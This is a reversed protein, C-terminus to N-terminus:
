QGRRAKLQINGINGTSNSKTKETVVPTDSFAVSKGHSELIEVVKSANYRSRPDVSLLSAIIDGYQIVLAEPIPEYRGQSINIMLSLRGGTFAKKSFLM